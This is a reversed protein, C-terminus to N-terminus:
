LILVFVFQGGLITSLAPSLVGARELTVPRKMAIYLCIYIYIYIYTYMYIYMYM